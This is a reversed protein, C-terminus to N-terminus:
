RYAALPADEDITEGRPMTPARNLRSHVSPTTRPRADTLTRWYPSRASGPEVKVAVMPREYDPTGDAHYRAAVHDAVRQPPLTATTRAEQEPSYGVRPLFCVLSGGVYGLITGLLAALLWPALLRALVLILAAM